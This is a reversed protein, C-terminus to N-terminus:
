IGCPYRDIAVVGLRGCKAKSDIVADQGAERKVNYEFYDWGHKLCKVLTDKLDLMQGESGAFIDVFIQVERQTSDTGIEIFNHTAEGARM